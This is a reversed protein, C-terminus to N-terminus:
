RGRRERPPPWSPCAGASCGARRRGARLPARPRGARHRVARGGGACRRRVARGTSRARRRVGLGGDARPLEGDGRPQLRLHVFTLDSYGVIPRRGPACAPRRRPAAAALGSGAGGRAASSAGRGRRRRLLSTCTPWASSWAARSNFRLAGAVHGARRTVRFGLARAGGGRAGAPRSRGDGAPACVGVLDGPRLARPRAWPKVAARAHRRRGGALTAGTVYSARESCLFAVGGRVGGARGVRGLPARAALEALVKEPTHGSARARAKAVEDLRDTRTYGPCVTNVLIGDSGSSTPWRRPWASSRPGSRTRCRSARRDAAERLPLRHQRHPGLPQARMHPVAARVLHVVNALTVRYAEEWRTTARGGRLCGAAARGHEHRPHRPPRLAAAASTWSRAPLGGAVGVDAVVALTRAGTAARSRKRRRARHAGPRPRVAGGLLGGRGARARDGPGPRALRRRRRGRTGETRPGSSGSREGGRERSRAPRPGSARRRRGAAAGRAPRSRPLSCTASAEPARVREVADDM